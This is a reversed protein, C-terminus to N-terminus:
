PTLSKKYKLVFLGLIFLITSTIASLMCYQCIAEIVFIQLYVLWLSFLFGVTTLPPIFSLIKRNKTDYYLLSLFLITFYYLLGLLSLPIGYIVSYASTTVSECGKTISCGLDLGTYHSITLYSTDLFGIFSIIILWWNLKKPLLKSPKGSSHASNKM